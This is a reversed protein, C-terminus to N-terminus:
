AVDLQLPLHDSVEDNLVQFDNVVVGPSVFAFDAFKTPKTYHSSRTSIIGYEQILNKMGEGMIRISETGPELNMDGVLINPGEVDQLIFRVRKSQLIRADTDGKGVGTEWLGHMNAITLTTEGNQLKLLQINRPMTDGIDLYANRDRHIMFAEHEIVSIGKRVFVANGFEVSGVPIDEPVNDNTGIQYGDFFPQFDPLAKSIESMLQTHWGESIAPTGPTANHFIEQFCFVDTDKSHAKLFGLLQEILKGGWTNLSIIRM